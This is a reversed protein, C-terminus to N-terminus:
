SKALNLVSLKDFHAQRLSGSGCGEGLEPHQIVGFSHDVSIPVFIVENASEIVQFSGYEVQFPKWEM